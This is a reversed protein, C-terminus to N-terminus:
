DTDELVTGVAASAALAIDEAAIFAALVTGVVVAFAAQDTGVVVVFAALCTDGAVSAFAVQGIDVEFSRLPQTVAAAQIDVTTSTSASTVQAATGM